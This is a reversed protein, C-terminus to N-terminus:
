AASRKKEAQIGFFDNATVKGGTVEFIRQMEETRPINSQMWRCVNQRSTGVTRAFDSPTLNNETLFDTLKM